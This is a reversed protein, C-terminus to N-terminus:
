RPLNTIKPKRKSPKKHAYYFKLAARRNIIGVREPNRAKWNETRATQKERYGNYDCAWELTTKGIRYKKAFYTITKHIPNAKFQVLFEKKQQPTLPM